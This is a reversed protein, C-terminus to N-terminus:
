VLAEYVSKMYRARLRDSDAFTQVMFVAFLDNKPDFWFDTGAAGSWTYATSAHKTGEAVPLLGFGLGFGGKDKYAFNARSVGPGVENTMM